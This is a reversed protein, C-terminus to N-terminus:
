RVSALGSKRAMALTMITGAVGIGVLTPRIGFHDAFYGSLLAGAPALAVGLFRMTSIVRGLLHDPTIRQRLAIYPMMMFMMGCDRTMLLLAYPVAVWRTNGSAQAPLLANLLFSLMITGFGIVVMTGTGYRQTLRKTAFASILIGLGGATEALGLVGASFGLTRTAFVVSLALYGTFLINLACVVGALPLLVPHRWLFLLGERMDHLPHAESPSPPPDHFRISQTVAISVSLGAATALLAFPATVFQVLLGAIGPGVLRAISDTSSFRMQASLMGDRGVISTLLIQEASGGFLYGLGILFAVVYLWPMSLHHAWFAIPVSTIAAASAMKAALLTPRKRNRDLWVGAPLGFIAFPLSQMAALIGMEAPSAHLLLVACLPLALSSIQTSFGNLASSLWYRRFSTSKLLPDANIRRAVHHTLSALM